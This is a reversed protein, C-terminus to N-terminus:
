SSKSRKATTSIHQLETIYLYASFLSRLWDLESALLSKFVWETQSHVTSLQRVILIIFSVTEVRRRVRLTRWLSAPDM